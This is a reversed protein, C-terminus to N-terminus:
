LSPDDIYFVNSIQNDIGDIEQQLEKRRGGKFIGTCKSLEHKLKDRKKECAFIAKNQDKLKSDIEKLHLYKDALVSPKLQPPRETGLQKTPVPVSKQESKM